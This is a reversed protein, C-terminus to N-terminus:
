RLGQDDWTSRSASRAPRRAARPSGGDRSLKLPAKYRSPTTLAAEITWGKWLRQDLASKSFGLINAWEKITHTEGRFEIRVNNRRNNSQETRTGWRCNSAFYGLSNDKRELSLSPSLKPGMDELFCRFDRWRDCVTIGREGYNKWAVNNPNTCRQIMHAWASYEPTGFKGHSIWGKIKHKPRTRACKVRVFPIGDKTWIETM